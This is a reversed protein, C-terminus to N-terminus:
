HVVGLCKSYVHFMFSKGELLSCSFKNERTELSSLVDLIIHDFKSNSHVVYISLNVLLIRLIGRSRTPKEKLTCWSGM